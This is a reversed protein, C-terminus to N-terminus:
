SRRSYVTLDLVTVQEPGAHKVRVNGVVYDSRRYLTHEITPLVFAGENPRTSRRYSKWVGSNHPPIAVWRRQLWGDMLPEGAPHDIHAQTPPGDFLTSVHDVPQEDGLGGIAIIRCNQQKLGRKVDLSEQVLVVTTYRNSEILHYATAEPAIGLAAYQEEDLAEWEVVGEPALATRTTRLPDFCYKRYYVDAMADPPIEDTAGQIVIINDEPTGDQMANDDPAQAAAPLLTAAVLMALLRGAKVPRRLVMTQRTM